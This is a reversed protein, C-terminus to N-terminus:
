SVEMMKDLAAKAKRRVAAPVRIKHEMLELSRAVWGLTILKMDACILHESALYFRKGPSEKRMKYLMGSETGVIFERCRSKKVYEAMGATSSVYDAQKLVEPRCEPHAIFRARPHVKKAKLVDEESLRIHTPCFGWWFIIEKEPLQQQVFRGLNEDPAFIVRKQKLSKVVAVANSSTCCIDSAAKIRASTNVYSVVPAGPFRKRMQKVSRVNAMDALTCGAEKVPLLITKDPSLISATEAMFQVGCFVVVAADTKAVAKSLALSDGTIDAIDQIEDRQYNHAVIIANRKKKLELIKKRLAQIYEEDNRRGYGM